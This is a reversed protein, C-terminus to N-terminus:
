NRGYTVPAPLDWPQAREAPRDHHTGQHLLHPAHGGTLHYLAHAAGVRRGHGAWHFHHRHQLSTARPLASVLVLCALGFVTLLLLSTRYAAHYHEAELAAGPVAGLLSFLTGIGAVGITQGLQFSTTLAGAAAGRDEPRIGSLVSGILPSMTFGEGAGVVLLPALLTLGSVRSGAVSVSVFDALLGLTLLTCGLSLVSRGGRSLVLRPALLSAAFFAVGVPAFALGAQLPDLGVGVQLTLTTYVTFGVVTVFYVFGILIGVAFSRQRFLAPVILPIRGSSVVSREHRILLACAPGAAAAMAWTWWPWGLDPGILLPLVLCLLATAILAIGGQDIRLPAGKAPETRMVLSGTLLAALGIPVLVLFAPRWDLGFVDLEIMAGGILQGAVIAVGISAGFLGLAFTRERGEFTDDIISLVQPYILAAGFGQLLRAAILVATDPALGGVAVAATFVALGTLLVRKRGLLDGLRGGTTLFAAYALGYGAVAFMIEGFGAHLSQQISPIALNVISVGGIVLFTSTLVVGLVVWRRRDAGGGAPEAPEARM